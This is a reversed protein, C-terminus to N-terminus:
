LAEPNVLERGFSLRFPAQDPRLGNPKRTFKQSGLLKKHAVIHLVFYEAPTTALRM